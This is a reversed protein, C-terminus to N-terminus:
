QGVGAAATRSVAGLGAAALVRGLRQLGLPGEANLLNASDM